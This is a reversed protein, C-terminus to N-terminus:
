QSRTFSARLSSAVLVHPRLSIYVQSTLGFHVFEKVLPLQACVGGEAALLAFKHKIFYEVAKVDHNTALPPGGAAGGKFETTKVRYSYIVHLNSEKGSPAM